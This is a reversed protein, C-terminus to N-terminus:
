SIAKAYQRALQTYREPVDERYLKAENNERIAWWTQDWVPSDLVEPRHSIVLVTGFKQKLYDFVRLLSDTGLPDLNGFPEDVILVNTEIGTYQQKLDRLGLLMALGAKHREGGSLLSSSVVKGDRKLGFTLSDNGETVDISVNRKPWLMNVYFPITAEAADHLIRNFRDLKLGKPGFAYTLAKLCKFQEQLDKTKELGTAIKDRRETLQTVQRYQQRLGEVDSSAQVIDDSAQQISERLQQAKASLQQADGGKLSAASNVRDVIRTAAAHLRRLAQLSQQLQPLDDIDTGAPMAQLQALLSQRTRVAEKAETLQREKGSLQRIEQQVDKIDRDPLQDLKGQASQRKQAADLEAKTNRCYQQVQQLETRCAALQQTQAAKDGEAPPFARKCTPCAGCELRLKLLAIEQELEQHRQQGRQLGAELEDASLSPTPLRSLEQLIEVRREAAPLDQDHLQQLRAKIRVLEDTVDDPLDKPLSKLRQVIINRREVQDAAASKSGVTKAVQDIEVELDRCYQQDIQEVPKDFGGQQWTQQAEALHRDRAEVDRLSGQIADLQELAQKHQQQLLKLRSSAQQGESALDDVSKSHQLQQQLGALEDALRDADALGTALQKMQTKTVDLARDYLDLGFMETLAKKREGDTGHLLANSFEQALYILNFFSTEDLHLINKLVWAQPRRSASGPVLNAGVDRDLAEYSNGQQTHQRFWRLEYDHDDVDLRHRASFDSGVYRNIIDDALVREGRRYEGKGSKGTLIQCLIEVLSTKGAGLFGTDDVNLGRLLVLGQQDFSVRLERYAYANHAVLDKLRIKM